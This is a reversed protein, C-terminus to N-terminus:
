WIININIKSLIIFFFSSFLFIFFLIELGFAGVYVINAGGEELSKRCKIKKKVANKM